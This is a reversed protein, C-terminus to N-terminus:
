KAKIYKDVIKRMPHGPSFVKQLVGNEWSPLDAFHGGYQAQKRSMRWNKYVGDGMAEMGYETLFDLVRAREKSFPNDMQKYGSAVFRHKLLTWLEEAVEYDNTQITHQIDASEFGEWVEEEINNSTIFVAMRAAGYVMHALIPSFLWYNTPTQYVLHEGTLAFEKDSYPGFEVRRREASPRRDLLMSVLGICLRMNDKMREHSEHTPGKIMKALATATKEDYIGPKPTWLNICGAADLITGDEQIYSPVWSFFAQKKLVVLAKKMCYWIHDIGYARCYSSQATIRLMGDKARVISRNKGTPSEGGGYKSPTYQKDPMLPGADVPESNETTLVIDFEAGIRLSQNYPYTRQNKAKM